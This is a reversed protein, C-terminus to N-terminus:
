KILFLIISQNIQKNPQTPLHQHRTSCCDRMIKVVDLDTVTVYIENVGTGTWKLCAVIVTLWIEEINLIM